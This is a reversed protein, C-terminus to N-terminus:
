LSKKGFSVLNSDFNCHGDLFCDAIKILELGFKTKEVEETREAFVSGSTQTQKQRKFPASYVNKLGKGGAPRKQLARMETWERTETILTLQENCTKLCKDVGQLLKVM